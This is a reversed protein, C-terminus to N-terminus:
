CPNPLIAKWCVLWRVFAVEGLGFVFIVGPMMNVIDEFLLEFKKSVFM